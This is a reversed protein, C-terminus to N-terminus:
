GERAAPALTTTAGCFDCRVSSVGRIRGAQRYSGGCTPCKAPVLYEAVEPAAGSRESAIEGSQCRLLLARWADSDSSLEFQAASARTGARPVVTLVERKLILAKRAESAEVQELDALTAQWRVEKVLESATTIFLIKKRAVKERREFVLRRDTLFLIGEVANDGEAWRAEVASVVGEGPELAFTAGGLCDLVRECTQVERAIQQVEGSLADYHGEVASEAARIRREAASVADDAQRVTQEVTSLPRPKLPLVRRVAADARDIEPQLSSVQAEIAASARARAEPWRGALTTLREELHAHYAYGRLRIQALRQALSGLQADIEGLRDRQRVLLAGQHLDGLRSEVRSITHEATSEQTM